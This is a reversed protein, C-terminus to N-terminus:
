AMDMWEGNDSADMEEDRVFGTGAPILRGLIVNEKLGKLPDIAGVTSAKMLVRTTDQFSAAAMWSNTLMAAKTIGLLHPTATAPEGGEALVAANALRLTHMHVMDGHLLRTDGPDDIVVLNLMQSVIVELHKEHIDVGQSRYISLVENVLFRATEDKGIIRLMDHPDIPGDTLPQGPIVWEGDEVLLRAM